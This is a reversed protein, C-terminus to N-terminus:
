LAIVSIIAQNKVSFACGKRIKHSSGIVLKCTVWNWPPRARALVEMVQSFALNGTNGMVLLVELGKLWCQQRSLPLQNNYM